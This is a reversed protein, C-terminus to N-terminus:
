DTLCRLVQGSGDEIKGEQDPYVMRPRGSLNIIIAWSPFQNTAHCFWFTGNGNQLTAPTFQLYDRRAPFSRWNLQGQFFTPQFVMIIQKPQIIKGDENADIFILQGDTWRGGCTKADKSKCLGITVHRSMAETHALQIAHWLQSQLSDDNAKESFNKLSPYVMVALLSTITLTILAEILSLGRQFFM